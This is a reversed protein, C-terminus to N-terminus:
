GNSVRDSAGSEETQARRLDPQILSYTSRHSLKAPLCPNSGRYRPGSGRTRGNSSRGDGIPERLLWFEHNYTARSLGALLGPRRSPLHPDFSEHYPRDGRRGFHM